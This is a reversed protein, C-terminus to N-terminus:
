SVYCLRFMLSQTILNGNYWLLKIKKMTDSTMNLFFSVGGGFPFDSYHPCETSMNKSYTKRSRSGLCATSCSVSCPPFGRTKQGMCGEMFPYLTGDLGFATMVFGKTDKAWSYTKSSNPNRRSAGPARKEPPVIDFQHRDTKTTVEDDCCSIISM